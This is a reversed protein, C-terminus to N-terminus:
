FFRGARLEEVGGVEFDYVLAGSLSQGFRAGLEDHAPHRLYAQLGALDDFDIQAIYDASDPATTEYGAGHRVRRGVRVARVTPIERLARDFAAVFASRDAAVLDARPKMLVVHTLMSHGRYEVTPRNTTAGNVIQRRRSAPRRGRAVRHSVV